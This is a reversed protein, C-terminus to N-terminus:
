KLKALDIRTAGLIKKDKPDQVFLVLSANGPSLGGPLIVDVEGKGAPTMRQTRFHRVVNTHTFTHGANTGDAIPRFIKREVVAIQLWFYPKRVRSLGAVQYTIAVSKGPDRWSSKLSFTARPQTKLATAIARQVSVASKGKVYDSGNIYMAAPVLRTQGLAQAYEKQRQTFSANSYPDKWDISTLYDVHYSLLYVNQKEARTNQDIAKAVESPTRCSICNETTFFEVVAFGDEASKENRAGATSQAVATEPVVVTDLFLSLLPM